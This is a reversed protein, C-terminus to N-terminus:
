AIFSIAILSRLFSDNKPGQIDSYICEKPSGEVESVSREPHCNARKFYQAWLIATSVNSVHHM